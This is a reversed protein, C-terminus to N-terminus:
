GKYRVNRWPSVLPQGDEPSHLDGDKTWGCERAELEQILRGRWLNFEDAREPQESLDNLEGPDAELDFFSSWTM